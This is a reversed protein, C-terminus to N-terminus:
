IPSGVSKFRTSYKIVVRTRQILRTSNLIFSAYPTKLFVRSNNGFVEHLWLMNVVWHSKFRTTQIVRDVSSWTVPMWWEIDDISTSKFAFSVLFNGIILVAFYFIIAAPSTLHMTIILPEIWEGCLVRFIMMFSHLFDTFNWRPVVRQEFHQPTYCGSFIQMGIVAFTYIVIMLLLTLNGLQGLSASIISLLARMTVWSQALKLVRLQFSECTNSCLITCSAIIRYRKSCKM